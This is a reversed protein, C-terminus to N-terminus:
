WKLGMKAGLYMELVLIKILIISVDMCKQPSLIKGTLEM